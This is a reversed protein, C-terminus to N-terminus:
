MKLFENIEKKFLNFAESKPYSTFTITNKLTPHQLSLKVAWLAIQKGRKGEGYRMDYLIPHGLEKLQVRIQHKRGTDLNLSVLTSNETWALPTVNMSAYVADKNNKDTINVFGNNNNVLYNVCQKKEEIIGSVVALYGRKIDHKKLAESLRKAAKSTKALVLLGGVPRDLRHVLGLYINGPKNYKNKLYEKALDVITKDGTIDGQSLVNPEKVVVLLHNDEYVIELKSRM